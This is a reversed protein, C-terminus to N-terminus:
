YLFYLFLHCYYIQVQRELVLLPYPIESINLQFRMLVSSLENFHHFLLWNQKGISAFTALCNRQIGAVLSRTLNNEVEPFMIVGLRAEKSGLVAPM